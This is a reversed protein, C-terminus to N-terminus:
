TTKSPSTGPECPFHLPTTTRSHLTLPGQKGLIAREWLPSCPFRTKRSRVEQGDMGHPVLLSQVRVKDTVPPGDSTPPQSPHYM